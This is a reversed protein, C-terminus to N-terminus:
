VQLIRFFLIFFAATEITGCFLTCCTDELKTHTTRSILLEWDRLDNMYLIRAQQLRYVHARLRAILMLWAAPHIALCSCRYWNDLHCKPHYHETSHETYRVAFLISSHGTMNSWWPTLKRELNRESGTMVHRIIAIDILLFWPHKILTSKIIDLIFRM